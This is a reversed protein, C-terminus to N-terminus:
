FLVDQMTSLQVPCARAISVHDAAPRPNPIPHSGVSAWSRYRRRRGYWAAHHPGHPRFGADLYASETWFLGFVISKMSFTTSKISVPGIAVIYNSAVGDAANGGICTTGPRKDAFHIEMTGMNADGVEAVDEHEDAFDRLLWTPEMGNTARSDYLVYVTAEVALDFCLYQEDSADSRKDGNATRIFDAGDLFDPVNLFVYERDCYTQEGATMIDVTYCDAAATSHRRINTVLTSDGGLTVGQDLGHVHVPHKMLPGVAIVYNSSVGPASAGGICVQPNTRIEKSGIYRFRIEMTGMNADTVDAVSAHENAFDVQMWSPEQGDLTRSDHMVYVTSAQSVDFCLFSADAPDSGKDANATQILDAGVLFAPLTTFVYDRDCYISAGVQM